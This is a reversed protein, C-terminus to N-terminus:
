NHDTRRNARRCVNERQVLLDEPAVHQIYLLRLVGVRAAVDRQPVRKPLVQTARDELQEV